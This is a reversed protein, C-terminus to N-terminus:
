ELELSFNQSKQEPRNLTVSTTKAKFGKANVSITYAGPALDLFEYHGNEDTEVTLPVSEPPTRSLKVIAGPLASGDQVATVTGRIAAARDNGTKTAPKQSATSTSAFLLVSAVALRSLWLWATNLALHEVRPIRAPYCLNPFLSMKRGM